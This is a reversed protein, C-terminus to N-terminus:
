LKFREMTFGNDGLAEMTVMEKGREPFDIILLHEEM